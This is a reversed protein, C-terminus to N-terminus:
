HLRQTAATAQCSVSGASVAGRTKHRSLSIADSYRSRDLRAPPTPAHVLIEGLHVALEGPAIWFHRFGLALEGPRHVVCTGEVFSGRAQELQRQGYASFCVACDPGVHALAEGLAHRLSLQAGHCEQRDSGAAEWGSDGTQAPNVLDERPFRCGLLGSEAM